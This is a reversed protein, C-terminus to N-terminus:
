QAAEPHHHLRRATVGDFGGVEGGGGILACRCGLAPRRLAGAPLHIWPNPGLHDGGLVIGAIDFQVKAAQDAFIAPAGSPYPGTLPQPGPLGDGATDAMIEVLIEGTVVVKKM